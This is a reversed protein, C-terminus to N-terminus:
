LLHKELPQVTFALEGFEEKLEEPIDAEYGEKDPVEDFGGDDDDDDDAGDDKKGGTKKPEGNKAKVDKKNDKTPSKEHPLTWKVKLENYKDQQAKIKGKLDLLHKIKDSQGMKM